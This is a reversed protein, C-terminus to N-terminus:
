AFPTEPIYLRRRAPRLHRGPEPYIPTQFFSHSRDHSRPYRCGTPGFRADIIFRPASDTNNLTNAGFASTSGRNMSYTTAVASPCTILPTTAPSVGVATVSRPDSFLVVVTSRTSM